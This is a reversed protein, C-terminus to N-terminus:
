VVFKQYYDYCQKLLKKTQSIEIYTTLINLLVCIFLYLIPILVCVFPSYYLFPLTFTFLILMHIFLKEFYDKHFNYSLSELSSVHLLHPIPTIWEKVDDESLTPKNLVISKYLMFRQVYRECDLVFLYKLIHTSM